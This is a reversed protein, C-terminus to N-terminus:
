KDGKEVGKEVGKAALKDGSKLLGTMTCYEKVQM